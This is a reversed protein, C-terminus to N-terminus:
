LLQINKKNVHRMGGRLDKDEQEKDCTQPVNEQRLSCLFTLLVGLSANTKLSRPFTQM